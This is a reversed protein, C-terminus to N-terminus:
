KKSRKTKALITRDAKSALRATKKTEKTPIEDSLYIKTIEHVIKGITIESLHVSLAFRKKDFVEGRRIARRSLYLFCVASAVSQPTSRNVLKSKNKVLECLRKIPPEDIEIDEESHGLMVLTRRVLDEPHLYRTRDKEFMRYYKSLASSLDRRPVSFIRSIDQLTYNTGRERLCFTYCIAVLANRGTSRVKEFKIIMKYKKDVADLIDEPVLLGKKLFVDDVSRVGSQKYHCRGGEQDKDFSYDLHCEFYGCNQCVKGGEVNVRELHLCEVSQVPEEVVELESSSNHLFSESEEKGLITSLISEDYFYDFDSDVCGNRVRANARSTERVKTDVTKGIFTTM